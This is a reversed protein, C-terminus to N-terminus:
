IHDNQFVPSSDVLRQLKKQARKIGIFRRYVYVSGGVLIAPVLSIIVLALINVRSLDDSLMLVAGCMVLGVLAGTLSAEYRYVYRYIFSRNATFKAVELFDEATQRYRITVPNM